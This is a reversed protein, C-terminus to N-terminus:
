YLSAKSSLQCQIGRYNQIRISINADCVSSSIHTPTSTNVRVTEHTAPDYAPGATVRLMYKDAM